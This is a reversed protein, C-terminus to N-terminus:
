KFRRKFENGAKLLYGEKNELQNTIFRTSTKQLSAYINKVLENARRGPWDKNLMAEPLEHDRLLIRRYEHIVLTRLLFSQQENISKGSQIMKLIPQYTDILLQYDTQLKRLNWKENALKKLVQTSNDDLTHTNFVVVAKKLELENITEDLSEKEISPHAFAGSSLPSFGLWQLQRKFKILKEETVFCPVVILWQNDSHQSDGAYIRRAAKTYHKNASETFSYYSKRGQKDIQLWDDKVLRFVSTRILRESFGLPELAEILSGLWIWGGHQSVVDGFVTVIHSKSSISALACRSQIFNDIKVM